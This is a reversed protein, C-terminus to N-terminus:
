GCRRARCCCCAVASCLAPRSLRLRSRATLELNQPTPPRPTVRHALWHPRSPTQQSGDSGKATSETSTPGTPRTSDPAPLAYNLCDHRTHHEEAVTHLGKSHLMTATRHPHASLCHSKLVVAGAHRRSTLSHWAPWGTSGHMSTKNPGPLKGYRHQARDCQTLRLTSHDRGNSSAGNSTCAQTTDQAELDRRTM